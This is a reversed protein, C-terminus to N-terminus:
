INYTHLKLTICTYLTNQDFGGGVGKVVGEGPWLGVVNIGGSGTGWAGNSWSPNGTHITEPDGGPADGLTLWLPKKRLSCHSVCLSM